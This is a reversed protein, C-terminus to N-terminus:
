FLRREQPLYRDPIPELGARAVAPAIIQDYVSDFNTVRGAADMKKGFPMQVFCLPALEVTEDM